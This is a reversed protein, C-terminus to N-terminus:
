ILGRSRLQSFVERTIVELVEPSPDPIVSSRIKGDGTGSSPNAAAPAPQQKSDFTPAPVDCRAAVPDRLRRDPFGMREKLQFLERMHQDTVQNIEGLGRALLVVECYADLIEMRWFAEMIGTGLTVAGHNALLYCNFDQIIPMLQASLKPTGPTEYLAIPVEGVFIEVEPIVCKPVPVNTVAFASAHRPHAHIVSRIEPRHKYFTLHMLIESTKSRKGALQNGDVDLVVMDDPEMFGKSIMTPTAVIRGDALRYSFNGGNAEVFNKSYCRRGIECFLERAQQETLDGEDLPTGYACM